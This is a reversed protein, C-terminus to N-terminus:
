FLFLTKGRGEKQCNLIKLKVKINRL